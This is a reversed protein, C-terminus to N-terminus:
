CGWSSSRWGAADMANVLPSVADYMEELSHGTKKALKSAEKIKVSAEKMKIKIEKEIELFEEELSSLKEKLVSELALSSVDVPHNNKNKWEDDWKVMVQGNTLLDSVVGYDPSSHPDYRLKGPKTGEDYDDYDSTAIGVRDGAKFKVKAMCGEVVLRLLTGVLVM